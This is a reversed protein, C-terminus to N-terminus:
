PMTDENSDASKKCELDNNDPKCDDERSVASLNTGTAAHLAQWSRQLNVRAQALMGAAQIYDRQAQNLRVLMAKGADYEKEVLDRNKLVCEAASRQLLLAEQAMQLDLLAQQVEGAAKQEAEIIRLEAERRGHKAEIVSARKRGGAFLNLSANVGVTSTIRDASIGTDNINTTEMRAVAAIQPAYGAYERRVAAQARKLGLERQELDPRCALALDIMAQADPLAMTELTEMELDALQIEAPLRGEQFGVLMALAIRAMENNRKAQLLSGRAAYLATEFALVDSTAVRGVERRATAEKVLRKYFSIDSEAITLQERAMQHGYYAQAVADLLIRQGDRFAAKAEGYGYRAMANAYERAFGDFVLWGATINLLTNEQPSELFERYSELMDESAGFWSRLTKRDQISPQRTQASYFYLDHKADRLVQETEDLYENIPDTYGSPLWTFTYTYNLDVQPYYMSRAKVVMQKVQDVREAGAALSPNDALACRQMEILGFAQFAVPSAEDECSITEEPKEQTEEPSASEQEQDDADSMECIEVPEAADAMDEGFAHNRVGSFLTMLAIVLMTRGISDWSISTRDFVHMM